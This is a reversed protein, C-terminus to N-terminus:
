AWEREESKSQRFKVNRNRQIKRWAASRTLKEYEFEWPTYTNASSTITLIYCNNGALTQCLTDVRLIDSNEQSKTLFNQLDTYTYPFCHAFFVTDDEYLFEYSFSLSFYCEKKASDNRTINNRYYSINEGARHWDIGTLECLKKSYVLPKMGDNYLSDYKLLNVINLTVKHRPMYTKVSFYFWQTHGSTNFDFDLYLNYENESLKIAKGLNGSEFKSDFILVNKTPAVLTYESSLFKKPSLFSLKKYQSKDNESATEIERQISTPIVRTQQSGAEYIEGSKHAHSDYVIVGGGEYRFLLSNSKEVLVDSRALSNNLGFDKFYMSLEESNSEKTFNETLEQNLYFTDSDQVSFSSDFSESAIANM